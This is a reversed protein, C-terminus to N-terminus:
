VFLKTRTSAIIKEASAIKVEMLKLDDAKYPEPDGKLIKDALEITEPDPATIKVRPKYMPSYTTPEMYVARKNSDIGFITVEVLPCQVQLLGPQRTLVLVDPIPLVQALLRALYGADRQIAGVLSMFAFLEDWGENKIALLKYCWESRRNGNEDKCVMGSFPREPLDIVLPAFEPNYELLYDNIPDRDWGGHTFLLGHTFLKYEAAIVSLSEAQTFKYQCYEPSDEM